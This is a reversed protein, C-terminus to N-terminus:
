ALAANKRRKKEDKMWQICKRLGDHGAVAIVASEWMGHRERRDAEARYHALSPKLRRVLSQIHIVHTRLERTALKEKRPLNAIQQELEAIRLKWGAMQSEAALLAEEIPLSQLYHFFDDDSEM